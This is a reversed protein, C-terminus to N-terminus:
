LDEVSADREAEVQEYNEDELTQVSQLKKIEEQTEEEDQKARKKTSLGKNMAWKWQRM